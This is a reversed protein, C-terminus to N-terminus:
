LSLRGISNSCRRCLFVLLVTTRVRVCMDDERLPKSCRSVYWNKQYRIESRVYSSKNYRRVCRHLLELIRSTGKIYSYKILDEESGRAHRWRTRSQPLTECMRNICLWKLCRECMQNRSLPIEKSACMRAQKQSKFLTKCMVLGCESKLRM